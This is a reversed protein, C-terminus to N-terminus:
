FNELDDGGRRDAVTGFPCRARDESRQTLRLGFDVVYIHLFDVEMFYAGGVGAFRSLTVGSVRQLVETVSTDPLAGAEDAVISDVITDSNKKIDIASKLAKRRTTVIVVTSDPKANAEASTTDAKAATSNQAYASATMATLALASVGVGLMLKRTLNTM